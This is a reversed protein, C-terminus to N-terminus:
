LVHNVGPQAIVGVELRIVRTSVWPIAVPPAPKVPTHGDSAEGSVMAPKINWKLPRVKLAVNRPRLVAVENAVYPPWVAYIPHEYDPARYIYSSGIKECM